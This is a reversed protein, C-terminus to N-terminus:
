RVSRSISGRGISWCREALDCVRGAGAADYDVADAVKFAEGQLSRSAADFPRAMLVRDRVYLLHGSPAYMGPTAAAGAPLSPDPDFLFSRETSGIEGVYLGRQKGAIYFIFHRGDPLFSPYLHHTEGRRRAAVDGARAPRRRRRGADVSGASAASVRDHRRREVIGGAGAGAECIM